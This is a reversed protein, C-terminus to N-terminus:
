QFEIKRREQLSTAKASCLDRGAAAHACVDLAEGAPVQWCRGAATGPGM